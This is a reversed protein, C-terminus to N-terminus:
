NRIISGELTKCDLVNKINKMKKSQLRKVMEETLENATKDMLYKAVSYGGYETTAFAKRLSDPHVDVGIYDCVESWDMDVSGEVKGILTQLNKEYSNM